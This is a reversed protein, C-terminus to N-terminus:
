RSRESMAQTIPFLAFVLVPVAGGVIVYSASALLLPVGLIIFAIACTIGIGFGLFVSTM